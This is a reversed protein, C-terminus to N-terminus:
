RGLVKYKYLKSLHLIYNAYEKANLKSKGSKRNAFAFPIEKASKYKGKVIIELGIKYGTPSLKRGAIVSKKLMFFGSVPDSIRTLPMALITAGKSTIKRLASWNEIRGGKAYRSGVVLDVGANIKNFMEPIKEPPHSFDADMVGLVNGRAAKFGDIVASSLGFKGPRQILRINKFKRSFIKVADATGDPSNDDVVIIESVIRNKKFIKELREILKGVNERENYTPIVLSLM